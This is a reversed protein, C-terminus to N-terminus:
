KESWLPCHKDPLTYGNEGLIIRNDTWECLTETGFRAFRLFKCIRGTQFNEACTPSGEPTKYANLSITKLM